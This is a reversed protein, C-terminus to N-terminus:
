GGLINLFDGTLNGGANGKAAADGPFEIGLEKAAAKVAAAHSEAGELWLKSARAAIEQGKARIAPDTIQLNGQQDFVGGLLELSMKYIPATDKSDIQAAGGNKDAKAKEQIKVLDNKFATADRNLTFAREEAKIALANQRNKEGESATAAQADNQLILKNAQDRAATRDGDIADYLKDAETAQALQYQVWQANYEPPMIKALEPSSNRLETYAAAPNESQLVTAALSGVQDLEERKQKRTREDSAAYADTLAKSAAPNLIALQAMAAPDNGGQKIVNSAAEQSALTNAQKREELDRAARSAKVAEVTRYIEGVDIGLANAAM